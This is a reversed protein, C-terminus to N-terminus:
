TFIYTGHATSPPTQDTVRHPWLDDTQTFWPDDPDTILRNNDVDYYAARIHKGDLDRLLAQPDHLDLDTRTQVQELYTAFDGVGRDEAATAAIIEGDYIRGWELEDHNTDLTYVIVVM